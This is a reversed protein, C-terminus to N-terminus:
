GLRAVLWYLAMGALGGVLTNTFNQLENGILHRRELTAGLYSELTTGILAAAM